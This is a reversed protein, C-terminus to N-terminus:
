LSEIFSKTLKLFDAPKQYMLWHGCESVTAIDHQDNFNPFMEKYAYIQDHPTFQSKEGKIVFVKKRFSSKAPLEQGIDWFSRLIVESNLHWQLEGHREPNERLNAMLFMTNKENKTVKDLIEKMKALTMNKLSLELVAKTVDFQQKGVKDYYAIPLVDVVLIGDLLNPYKYATMMSAKGGWSHGILLPRDIQHEQIFDRVDDALDTFRMTSVYKSDAYNRLDLSYLNMM